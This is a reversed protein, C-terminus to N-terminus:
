FLGKYGQWGTSIKKRAGFSGKGNGHYRYLVGAKDRAVLDNRGDGTIDGVGVIANYSAGWGTSVAVRARLTGKGTGKGTGEFRYLTGNKGRALIDGFGDGTLDGAGVIHTYASWGSSIKKRAALKGDGKNAFLYLDGTSKKRAVLDTRGDGTLDGPATLMDYANWGTGLSTHKHSPTYPNGCRGAYRRLEGKPMRVLLESCRDSGMDGFPVAVSGAPWGSGSLKSDFAGKGKTYHLSLTGKANLTLLEGYSYGGQDHHGQRAGSLVIKGSTSYTGAGETATATLTWTYSGNYAYAGAADKGNWDVNAETTGAGTGPGTFTRVARGNADKVRFTWKVPKSFGWSSKWNTYKLDVGPEDVESETRTLSQSPVGSPVIRVSDDPGVYAIDGGFKDVAWTFRRQDATDGAPLEAIARPAASRGTHFDTLLLKGATRDHQVLYGDGVLAPGSPVTFSKKATRDYVGARAAPGPGCNWYVFRGVARLEKIVCGSGTAYSGLAKGSKIDTLTVTGATASASWLQAAWISAAVPTRTIRKVLRRYQPVNDIYQKGTSQADYVFYRGSIDVIRAGTVAPEIGHHSNPGTLIQVREKGRDMFVHGANGNGAGVLPICGGMDCPVEKAYADDGFPGVYGMSTRASATSGDAAIKRVAVFRDGYAGREVTHLIGGSFDIGWVGDTPVPTSIDAAGGAGAAGAAGATGAGTLSTFGAVLAAVAALATGRRAPKRNGM